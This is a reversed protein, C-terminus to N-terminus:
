AIEKGYFRLEKILIWSGPGNVATIDIKFKSYLTDTSINYSITQGGYIAQDTQSDIVTETQGDVGLVDWSKPAINTSGDFQTGDNNNRITFSLRELKIPYPLEFTIWGTSNSIHLSAIM